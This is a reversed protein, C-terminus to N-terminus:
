SFLIDLLRRCVLPTKIGRVAHHIAVVVSKNEHCWKLVKRPQSMFQQNGLPNYLNKILCNELGRGLFREPHNHPKRFNIRTHSKFLTKLPLLILLPSIYFFHSIILHHTTLSTTFEPSKSPYSACLPSLIGPSACGWKQPRCTWWIM